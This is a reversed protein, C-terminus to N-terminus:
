FAGIMTESEAGKAHQTEAAEEGWLELLYISRKDWRSNNSKVLLSTRVSLREM